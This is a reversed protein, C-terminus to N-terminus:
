VPVLLAADVEMRRLENLVAPAVRERVRRASYIGGMFTLADEALRGIAGRSVLSRLGRLPLVVNSDRRAASLDYAFHTARLASGPTDVPVRRLSTDDAHHFAVQGHRYVGGSGVLGLTLERLPRRLRVIPPPQAERVWAYDPYGLGAYLAQTRAIHDVPPQRTSQTM